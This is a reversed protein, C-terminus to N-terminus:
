YKAIPVIDFLDNMLDYINRVVFSGHDEWVSCNKEIIAEVEQKNCIDQEYCRILQLQADKAKIITDKLGLRNTGIRYVNGPEKHDKAIFLISKTELKAVFKDHGLFIKWGKWEDRYFWDPRFPLDKHHYNSRWKLWEDYDRLNLTSVFKLADNFPRYHELRYQEHAIIKAASVLDFHKFALTQTYGLFDKWGKWENNYYLEPHKPVIFPRKFSQYHEDFQQQSNLKFTQVYQKAEEFCAFATKGIWDNFSVFDNKYVKEPRKPIDHPVDNIECYKLWENFSNLKLKHVFAKANKYSRYRNKPRGPGKQKRPRGVKPKRTIMAIYQM